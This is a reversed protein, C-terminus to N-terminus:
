LSHLPLHMKIGSIYLHCKRVSLPTWSESMHCLTTINAKTYMKGGKKKQKNTKNM